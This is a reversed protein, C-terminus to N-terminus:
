GGLYLFAALLVLTGILMLSATMAFLLTYVDSATRVFGAISEGGLPAALFSATRFVLAFVGIQILPSLIAAALALVAGTGAASRTLSAMACISEAAEAAISGVVPISSSVALKLGRRVAAGAVIGYTKVFGTYGIFVTLTMRLFFTLLASLSKGAETLMESQFASATAALILIGSAAPLLLDRIVGAAIDAALLYVAESALADAGKGAIASACSLTPLSTRIVTMMDDSATRVASLFGDTDTFLFLFASFVGAARFLREPAKGKELLSEAVGVILTIGLLKMVSGAAAQFAPFVADAANKLLPAIADTEAASAKYATFSFLLAFLLIPRLAKVFLM